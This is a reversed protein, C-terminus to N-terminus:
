PEEAEGEAQAQGAPPEAQVAEDSTNAEAPTEAFPEEATGEAQAGPKAGARQLDPHPEPIPMSPTPRESAKRRARPRSPGRTLAQGEVEGTAARAARNALGEICADALQKVVIEISRMADDNGPIVVTLDDPDAETDALAVVPIDLKSAERVANKERVPDVVVLAGPMRDMKRIGDLNRKIKRLERQLSAIMKKSYRHIDGSAELAELEELRGLRSRITRFNTLTGGLWRYNVCPMLCRQAEQAISARAQRKTGVFLVDKGEAVLRSLFKKARVIGRVTEKIDIIHIFNRRGYIYPEMKPNWRSAPHGFHIGADILDRVQLQTL